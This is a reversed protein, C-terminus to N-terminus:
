NSVMKMTKKEGIIDSTTSLVPPGEKAKLDDDGVGWSQNQGKTKLLKMSCIAYKEDFGKNLLTETIMM